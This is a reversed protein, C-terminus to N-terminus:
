AKRLAGDVADALAGWSAYPGPHVDFDPAAHDDRTAQFSLITVREGEYLVELRVNRGDLSRETWQIKPETM